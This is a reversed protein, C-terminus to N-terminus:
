KTPHYFGVSVNAVIWQILHFTLMSIEIVLSWVLIKGLTIIDIMFNINILMTKVTTLSSSIFTVVTPDATPFLGILYTIVSIAFSMISNFIM